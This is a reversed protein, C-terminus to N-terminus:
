KSRTKVAFSKPEASRLVLSLNAVSQERELGVTIPESRVWIPTPLGPSPESAVCVTLQEGPDALVVAYFGDSEGLPLRRLLRSDPSACDGSAIIVSVPYKPRGSPGIRVVGSLEVTPEEGSRPPASVVPLPPTVVAVSLDPVPTSAPPRGDIVAAVVPEQRKCAPFEALTMLVATIVQQRRFHPQM